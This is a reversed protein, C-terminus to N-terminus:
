VADAGVSIALMIVVNMMMLSVTGLLLLFMLLLLLLLMMLLLLLVTVVVVCRALPLVLVVVQGLALESKLSWRFLFSIHVCRLLLRM